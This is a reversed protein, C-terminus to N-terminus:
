DNMDVFETCNKHKLFLPNDEKPIVGFIKRGGQATSWKDMKCFVKTKPIKKIKMNLCDYCNSM